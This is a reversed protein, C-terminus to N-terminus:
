LSIITLRIEKLIQFFNPQGYNNKSGFEEISIIKSIYDTRYAVPKRRVEARLYGNVNLERTHRHYDVYEPDNLKTKSLLLLGVNNM